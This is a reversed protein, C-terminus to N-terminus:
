AGRARVAASFSSRSNRKELPFLAYSNTDKDANRAAIQKRIPNGTLYCRDKPFFSTSEQYTVAVADSFKGLLKNSLGPVSNQELIMTPVGKLYATFVMGVSVYGGVGIVIDPRISKLIRYSEIISILFVFSAKIKKFLSKGVLGEAKLFRIPYGERPIVKAEIGHETGVFFVSNKQERRKFEEAVAIGPYLHGGTGGGAIIIKM